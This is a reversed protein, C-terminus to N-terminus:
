WSKERWGILPLGTDGGKSPVLVVPQFAKKAQYQLGKWAGYYDISSWSVAPWADNIQWYLSGMCQPAAARQLRLGLAIGRGQM